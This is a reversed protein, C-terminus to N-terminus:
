QTALGLAPNQYENIYVHFPQWKKNDFSMFVLLRVLGSLQSILCVADQPMM